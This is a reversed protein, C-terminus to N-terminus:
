KSPTSWSAVTSPYWYGLQNSLVGWLRGGHYMSCTGLVEMYGCGIMRNKPGRKLHLAPQVNACVQPWREGLFYNVLTGVSLKEADANTDTSANTGLILRM